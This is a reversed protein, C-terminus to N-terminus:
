EEKFLTELAETVIESMPVGDVAARVKLRHHLDAPIIVNLQRGEGAELQQRLSRTGDADKGARRPM